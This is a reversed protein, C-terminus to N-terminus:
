SENPLYIAHQTQKTLQIRNNLHLQESRVAITEITTHNPIQYTVIHFLHTTGPSSTKTSRPTAQSQECYEEAMLRM